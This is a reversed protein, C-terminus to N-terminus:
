QCFGYTRTSVSKSAIAQSRQEEHIKRANAIRARKAMEVGAQIAQEEQAAELRAIAALPGAAAVASARRPATLLDEVERRLEEEQQDLDMDAGIAGTVTSDFGRRSGSAATSRPRKDGQANDGSGKRKKSGGDTTLSNSFEKPLKSMLAAMKENKLSEEVESKDDDDSIVLVARGGALAVATAMQTQGYCVGWKGALGGGFTQLLLRLWFPPPAVPPSTGKVAAHSSFNAYPNTLETSDPDYLSGGGTYSHLVPFIADPITGQAPKVGLRSFACYHVTPSARAGPYQLLKTAAKTNAVAPNSMMFVDGRTNPGSALFKAYISGIHAPIDDKVWEPSRSDIICVQPNIFGMAAAGPLAQGITLFQSWETRTAVHVKSYLTAGAGIPGAGASIPSPGAGAGAGSPGAGNGAGEGGGSPGAGEDGGDNQGEMTQASSVPEQTDAEARGVSEIETQLKNWNKDAAKIGEIHEPDWMSMAMAREFINETVQANLVVDMPVISTIVWTEFEPFWDQKGATMGDVAMLAAVKTLVEQIYSVAKLATTVEMGNLPRKCSTRFSRLFRLYLLLGQRNGTRAAATSRNLKFHKNVVGENHLNALTFAREAQGAGDFTNAEAEILECALFSEVSKLHMGVDIGNPMKDNDEARMSDRIQIISMIRDTISSTVVAEGAANMAMGIDLQTTRKVDTRLVYARIDFSDENWTEEAENQPDAPARTALELSEQPTLLQLTVAFAPNYGQPGSLAAAM